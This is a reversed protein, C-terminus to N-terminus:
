EIEGAVFKSIEPYKDKNNKFDQATATEIIQGAQMLYITCKLKDILAVDHTAVLVIYGQDALEQISKAVFSTLLPDLASTPEDMCIIQPKMALTRAIALRQKQGGSLSSVYKNKKDILGYQTLLKDAVEQAQNKTSGLVKELALTINEQVTLHEFLNFQQFVMGISHSIEITRPDLLKDDLSIVGSDAHELNSLIRLLTSKGVGSQGLLIAIEGKKVTLSVDDVIKKDGYTKILNKIKLMPM